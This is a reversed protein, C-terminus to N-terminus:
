SANAHSMHLELLRLADVAAQLRRHVGHDRAGHLRQVLHVRRELLVSRQWLQLLGLRQLLDAGSGFSQYTGQQQKSKALHSAPSLKSICPLENNDNNTSCTAKTFAPALVTEVHSESSVRRCSARYSLMIIYWAYVVFHMIEFSGSGRKTVSSAVSALEAKASAVTAIGGATEAM